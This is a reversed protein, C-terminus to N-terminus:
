RRKQRMLRSFIYTHMIKRSGLSTMWATLVSNFDLETDEYNNCAENLYVAFRILKCYEYLM